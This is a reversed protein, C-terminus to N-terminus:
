DWEIRPWMDQVKKKAVRALMTKIEPIDDGRHLVRYVTQYNYGKDLCWTRLNLEKFALEESVWQARRLRGQFYDKTAKSIMLEATTAGAFRATEIVAGFPEIRQPKNREGTLLSGDIELTWQIKPNPRSMRIISSKTQEADEGFPVLPLTISDRKGYTAMMQFLSIGDVIAPAVATSKRDIVVLTKASNPKTFTLHYGKASPPIYTHVEHNDAILDAAEDWYVANVSLIHDLDASNLKYAKKVQLPPQTRM